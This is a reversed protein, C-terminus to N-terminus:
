TLFARYRPGGPLVEKVAYSNISQPFQPRNKLGTLEVRFAARAQELNVQELAKDLRPLEDLADALRVVQNGVRPDLIRLKVDADSMLVIAHVFHASPPINHLFPIRGRLVSALQRAVHNIKQLPNPRPESGSLIWINENGHIAGRWSKEDIVFVNHDAVIIFDVEYTTASPSIIEKNCVVIWKEPLGRLVQAAQRESVTVFSGMMILEAM